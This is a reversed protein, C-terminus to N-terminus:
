SAGNLFSAVFVRSNDFIPVM